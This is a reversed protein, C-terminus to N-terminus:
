NEVSNRDTNIYTTSLAQGSDWIDGAELSKPIGHVFLHSLAM